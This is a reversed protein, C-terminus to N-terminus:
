HNYSDVAPVQTFGAPADVKLVGDAGTADLWAVDSQVAARGATDTGVAVRVPLNTAADIWLTAQAVDGETEALVYASVGDITQTGPQRVFHGAGLLTRVGDASLAAGEVLNKAVGVGQVGPCTGDSCDIPRQSWPITQQSWIHDAYGVETTMLEGDAYAYLIDFAKAGSADYTTIHLISGDSSVWRDATRGDDFTSRVHFVDGASGAGAVAARVAAALDVRGLTHAHAAPTSGNGANSQSVAIATAPVLLAVSAVAAVARGRHVRRPRYDHDALRTGLDDSVDAATRAFAARVESELTTTV